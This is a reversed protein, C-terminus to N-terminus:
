INYLANKFKTIVKHHFSLGYGLTTITWDISVDACGKLLIRTRNEGEPILTILLSEDHPPLWPSWKAELQGLEPMEQINKTITQLANKCKNFWIDRDGEVVIVEESCRIM